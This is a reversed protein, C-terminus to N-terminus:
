FTVYSVSPLYKYFYKFTVNTIGNNTTKITVLITESLIFLRLTVSASSDAKPLNINVKLTTTKQAFAACTLLLLGCFILLFRNTM